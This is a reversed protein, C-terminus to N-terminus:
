NTHKDIDDKDPRIELDLESYKSKVESIINQIKQLIDGEKSFPKQRDWRYVINSRGM